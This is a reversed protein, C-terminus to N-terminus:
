SQRLRWTIHNIQTLIISDNNNYSKNTAVNLDFCITM